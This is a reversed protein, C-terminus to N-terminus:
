RWEPWGGGPAWSRQVETISEKEGIRLLALVAQARVDESPDDALVERLAPIATPYGIRGLAAVAAERVRLDPDQTAAVGLPDVAVWSELRGLSEAAKFRVEANEDSRMAITLAGMVHEPDGRSGLMIAANRRLVPDPNSRLRDRLVHVPLREILPDHPREGVQESTQTQASGMSELVFRDENVALRGFVSLGLFSGLGIATVAVPWTRDYRNM